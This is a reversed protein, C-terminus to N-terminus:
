RTLGMAPPRGAGRVEACHQLVVERAARVAPEPLAGRLWLYGDRDLAARLAAWDGLLPGGSAPCTLFGCRMGSVEARSAMYVISGRHVKDTVNTTSMHLTAM